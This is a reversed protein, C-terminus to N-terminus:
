ENAYYQYIGEQINNHMLWETCLHDAQRGLVRDVSIVHNHAHTWTVKWAYAPEGYLSPACSMGVAPVVKSRDILIGIRGYKIDVVMDGTNFQIDNLSADEM